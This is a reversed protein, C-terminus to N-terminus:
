FFYSSQRKNRRRGSIWGIFWGAFLVLAGAGFWRIMQSLKLNENEQTLTRIQEQAETLLVKTSDCEEKLKVYNASGSKLAEFSASLKALKDTLDKERASLDTKEKETSNLKDKLTSTEAQMDKILADDPPRTGLTRTPVWGDRKDGSPSTFRVLTWESEKLIEVATGPPLSGIVKKNTSPASRIPVDKSDIIFAKGGWSAQATWVMILLVAPVILARRMNM